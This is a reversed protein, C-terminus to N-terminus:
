TEYIMIDYTYSAVKRAVLVTSFILNVVALVFHQYIASKRVM